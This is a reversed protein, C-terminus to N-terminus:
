GLAALLDKMRAIEAGQSSTMHTAMQEVTADIGTIVVDDCMMIAGEHHEIMGTLFLRDFEAGSAAQLEAMQEDTLMGHMSMGGPQWGTEAEAPVALGRETLWDAMVKIEAGQELNMRHALSKLQESEAQEAAWDTMTLAQAHHPIMMAMFEADAENWTEQPDPDASESGGGPDGSENGGGPGGPTIVVPATPSPSPSPKKNGKGEPPAAGAAACSALVLALIGALLAAGARRGRAKLSTTTQKFIQTQSPAFCKM